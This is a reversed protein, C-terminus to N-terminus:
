YARAPPTAYGWTAAQGHRRTHRARAVLRVCWLIIHLATVLDLVVGKQGRPACPLPTVHGVVAAPHASSPPPTIGTNASAVFCTSTRHVLVLHSLDGLQSEGLTLLPNGLDDIVQAVGESVIGGEAGSRGGGKAGYFEELTSDM